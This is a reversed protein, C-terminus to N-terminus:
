SSFDGIHNLANAMAIALLVVLLNFSLVACATVILGKGVQVGNSVSVQRWGVVGCVVAILFTAFALPIQFRWLASMDPANHPHQFIADCVLVLNVLASGFCLFAYLNVERTIGAKGDDIGV